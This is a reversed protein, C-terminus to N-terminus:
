VNTDILVKSTLVLLENTSQSDSGVLPGNM